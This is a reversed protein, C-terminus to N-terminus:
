RSSIREQGADEIEEFVGYKILNELEREKVKVVEIRRHKAVPVEVTYVAVDDFCETNEM